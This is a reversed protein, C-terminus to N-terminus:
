LFAWRFRIIASTNPQTAAGDTDCALQADLPDEGAGTAEYYAAVNMKVFRGDALQLVYVNGTMQLCGDPSYSWYNQLVTGPATPLGSGDAQFSCGDGWYSEANFEAGDPVSDVAAFATNDGLNAATVCSPGGVGSNLRIVFRRFAVDWDMSDFSADDLVDVKVFGDDTFKGYIYGDPAPANFGGATADVRVEHFDGLDTDELERPNPDDTMALQQFSDDRCEVDTPETCVPEGEGEGEGEGAGNPCATLAPVVFCFSLALAPKKM